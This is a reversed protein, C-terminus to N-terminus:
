DLDKGFFAGLWSTWVRVGDHGIGSILGVVPVGAAVSPCFTLAAV